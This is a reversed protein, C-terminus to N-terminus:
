RFPASIKLSPIGGSSADVVCERISRDVALKSSRENETNRLQPLAVVHQLRTM